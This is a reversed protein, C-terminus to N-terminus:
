NYESNGTPEVKVLVIVKRGRFVLDKALFICVTLILASGLFKLLV